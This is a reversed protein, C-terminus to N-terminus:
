DIPPLSARVFQGIWVCAEVQYREKDDETGDQILWEALTDGIFDPSDALWPAQDETVVEGVGVGSIGGDGADGALVNAVEELAGARM